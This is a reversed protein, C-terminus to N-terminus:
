SVRRREVSWLPRVVARRSLCDLTGESDPSLQARASEDFSTGDKSIDGTGELHRHLIKFVVRRFEWPVTGRGEPPSSTM